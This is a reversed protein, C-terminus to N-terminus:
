LEPTLVEKAAKAVQKNVHKWDPETWHIENWVCESADDFASCHHADCDAQTIMRITIDTGVGLPSSADSATITQGTLYPSAGACQMNLVKAKNRAVKLDGELCAIRKKYSNSTLM